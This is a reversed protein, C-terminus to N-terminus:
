RRVLVLTPSLPSFWGPSLSGVSVSVPLGATARGVIWASLSTKAILTPALAILILLGLLFFGTFKLYRNLSGSSVDRRAMSPGEVLSITAVRRHLGRAGRSTLSSM